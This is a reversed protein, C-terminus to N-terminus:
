LSRPPSRGSNQSTDIGATLLEQSLHLPEPMLVIWSAAVPPEVVFQSEVIRRNLKHPTGITRPKSVSVTTDESYSAFAESKMVAWTYTRGASSWM